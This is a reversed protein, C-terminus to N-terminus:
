ELQVVISTSTDIITGAEINQSVVYGSGSLTVEIGTLRWFATVDKRSWGEMDPMYITDGDTYLLVTQGSVLTSGADPYQAIVTSGDGIYVIDVDYDSMKSEVYTSTHNVLSPMEESYIAKTEEDTDDEESSVTYLNYEDAITRVLENVYEQNKTSNPNDDEYCVYILIEPDDAPIALVISHITRDGYGGDVAVEATGTKGGVLIDDQRYKTVGATAGELDENVAKNMMELITTATEESVVQESYETEGQYVVEGTTSDVIKDIIYPKVMYGENCFASYAQIIQLATYTNGQGYTATAYESAYNMNKIGTAENYLGYVGVEEFFGFKELYTEFDDTSLYETLLSVAAVNISAAYSYWYNRTGYSRWGYNYITTIYGSSSSSSVRLLNGSADEGLYFASTDVTDDLNLGGADLAAAYTFTKMVSGPEYAVMSCYDIYDEIDLDNQNYTPYSDYAVIKGTKAEMVIGWARQSNTGVEMSEELCTDLAVQLRHNITLYVDNGDVAATYETQQGTIVNGSTDKYYSQSGNTGTLVDDLALEIGNKGMLGDNGGDEIYTYSAFGVLYSAYPTFLYKRKSVKVFEIGNLDLAEIEEKLETSIGRGAAGLYTMYADSTLLDYLEDYDADLYEALVEATYAPDDVYYVGESNGPREASIYAVVDWAEENTALCYTDDYINGRSAAIVEDEVYSVGNYNTLDTGSNLHIGELDIYLVNRLLLVGLMAMSLTILIIKTNGKRM